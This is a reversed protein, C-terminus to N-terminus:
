QKILSDPIEQKYEYKTCSDTIVKLVPLFGTRRSLKYECVGKEIEKKNVVMWPVGDDCSYVTILLLHVLLLWKM